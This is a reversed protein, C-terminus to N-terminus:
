LVSCVIKLGTKKMRWESSTCHRGKRYRREALVQLPTNTLLTSVEIPELIREDPYGCLSYPGASVRLTNRGPLIM